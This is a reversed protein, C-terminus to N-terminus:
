TPAAPPSAMEAAVADAAAELVHPPPQAAPLLERPQLGAAREARRRQLFVFTAAPASRGKSGGEVPGAARGAGSRKWIRAASPAAASRELGREVRLDRRMPREAEGALAGAGVVLIVHQPEVAAIPQLRM